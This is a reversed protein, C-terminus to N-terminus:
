FVYQDFDNQMAPKKSTKPPASPSAFNMKPLSPGRGGNKSGLIIARTNGESIVRRDDIVLTIRDGIWKKGPQAIQSRGTFLVHDAQGLENNFMTVKPGIGITDKMYVRVNGDAEMRGTEENYDQADSLITIEQTEKTNGTSIFETKEKKKPTPAPASAVTPTTVSGADPESGSTTGWQNATEEPPEGSIRGSVPPKKALSSTEQNPGGKKPGTATREQIVKSKVQGTAQMRKTTLFYTMTDSQTVNRAKKATVKGTFVVAEPKGNTGYVLRLHDSDVDVQGETKVHVNGFAEFKGTKKEFVQKDSDTIFRQPRSEDNRASKPADDEDDGDATAPKASGAAQSTLFESHANGEAVIVSTKVFFTLKNANLVNQGQKLRPNGTFVATQPQGDPGKYMTAIPSYIVTDGTIVRVNGRAIMCDDGFEQEEATIDIPDNGQQALATPVLLSGGLVLSLALVIYSSPILSPKM